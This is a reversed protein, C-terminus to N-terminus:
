QALVIIFFICQLVTKVTEFLDTESPIDLRIPQHKQSDDNDGTSIIEIIEKNQDLLSRLMHFEYDGKNSLHICVRIPILISIQAGDVCTNYWYQVGTCVAIWLYVWIFSIKRRYDCLTFVSTILLISVSSSFVMKSFLVLYDVEQQEISLLYAIYAIAAIDIMSRLRNILNFYSSIIAWALSFFSVGLVDLM